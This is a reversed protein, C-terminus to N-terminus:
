EKKFVVTVEFSMSPLDVSKPFPSFPSAEKLSRIAIDRLVEDRVSASKDVEFFSLSGDSRLIFTLRVEGEKHYRKYHHKLAQRIKERILQYYNIYDKTSKVKAQKEALERSFDKNSPSKESASVIPPTPFAEVKHATDLKPTELQKPEAEVIVAPQSEELVIYDVIVNEIKKAM